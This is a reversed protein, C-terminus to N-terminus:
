SVGNNYQIKKYNQRGETRVVTPILFYRRTSKKQPPVEFKKSQESIQLATEPLKDFVKWWNELYYKLQFM